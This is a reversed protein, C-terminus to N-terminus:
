LYLALKVSCFLAQLDRQTKFSFCFDGTVCKRFHQVEWHESMGGFKNAVHATKVFSMARKVCYILKRASELAAGGDRSKCARNLYLDVQFEWAEFHEFLQCTSSNVPSPADTLVFANKLTNKLLFCASVFRM